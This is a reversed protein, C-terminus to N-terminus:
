VVTNIIANGYLVGSPAIILKPTEINRSFVYGTESRDNCDTPNDIGGSILAFEGLVVNSTTTNEYVYEVYVKNDIVYYSSSVDIRAIETSCITEINPNPSNDNSSGLAVYKIPGYIGSTNQELRHLYHAAAFNMVLNPKNFEKFVLNNDADLIITNWNVNM